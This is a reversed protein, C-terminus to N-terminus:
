LMYAAIAVAIMAGMSGSKIGSAGSVPVASPTEGPMSGTPMAAGSSGTPAEAGNTIVSLPKETCSKTPLPERTVIDPTTSVPPCGSCTVTSMSDAAQVGALITLAAVIFKM